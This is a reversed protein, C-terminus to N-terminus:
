DSVPPELFRLIKQETDLEAMIGVPITLIGDDHGFPIDMVLPIGLEDFHHLIVESATFSRDPEEPECDKLRGVIVAKLGEYGVAMKFQTLARDLRYPEEKIDEWFFIVDKFDPLYETGILSQILSLCGGILRGRTKGQRHIYIPRQPDIDLPLEMREGKLIEFLIRFGIEKNESWSRPAAIPGQFSVLNLKKLLALNLVTIDSYGIISKPEKKFDEYPFTELLNVTGFGGRAAIILDIDPDSILSNLAEAREKANGAFYGIKSHINKALKVIFGLSKLYQLGRNLHPLEVSSAPAM